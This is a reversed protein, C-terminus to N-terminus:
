RSRQCTAINWGGLYPLLKRELVRLVPCVEKKGFESATWGTALELDGDGDRTIGALVEDGVLVVAAGAQLEVRLEPHIHLRSEITHVGSGTVRDEISLGESGWRVRRHHVPSGRLRKYGDHAGDFVLTGDAREELRAYLPKARRACRHAGWVESQNAGDVTVTNHGANGRQYQRVPGDDYQCCGSDVIVRRGKLSLEFSLTDCHAHGPQYDPGIPGCDIILRDGDRPAMVFYGTDPFSWCVLGDSCSSVSNGPLGDSFGGLDGKPLPPSGAGGKHLILSGYGGKQWPPSEAGGKELPPSPPIQSPAHDLFRNGTCGGLRTRATLACHYDKLAAPPLEIGFAADNFLAIEGDPHTMGQLFGMMGAAVRQLRSNLGSLRRDDHGYCVNLLDLCDELIMSHYMPSREFHGGDPLIQEGLEELLLRVGKELWRQAERGRFCLGAFVLAKANKFLHNGLLHRELSGVLRCVQEYLSNIIGEATSGASPSLSLYKMWNVVRLSIPFPDWADPTGPPNCAVWDAMLGLAVRLELSPTALLYQFYHLNYRWLRNKGPARWDFAGDEESVENLFLFRRREIDQPTFRPYAAFAVMPKLPQWECPGHDLRGATLRALAPLRSRLVYRARHFVQGPKLYLITRWYLALKGLMM